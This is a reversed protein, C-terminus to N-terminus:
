REVAVFACTWAFEALESASAGLVLVRELGEAALELEFARVALESASAGEAVVAAFAPGSSYAVWAWAERELGFAM